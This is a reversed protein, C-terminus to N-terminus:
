WDITLIICLVLLVKMSMPVQVGYAMESVIIALAMIVILIWQIASILKVREGGESCRVM